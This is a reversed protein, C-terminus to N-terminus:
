FIIVIMKIFKSRVYFISDPM